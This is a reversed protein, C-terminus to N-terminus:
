LWKRHRFYAFFLSSLLVMLTVIIWFDYQTGIIPTHITNMGFMSSMLTLPYTVFALITFVRMFGNQKTELLSNNTERLDTFTSTLAHLRRHVIKYQHLLGDCTTKYSKSFADSMAEPLKTLTDEHADVTQKFTILRRSVSSLEYVMKEENGNFIEEEIDKLKSELYDLKVYLADYFRSVLTTFLIEATTKGKGHLMSLIEFEKSFRHLSEIEEFRITILHKKSVIFIVEHPHTIDTRKVIPFHLIVKLFGSDAVAETKPTMLTLDRTFVLPIACEDVLERIEEPTPSLVDLWTIKNYFYREIMSIKVM